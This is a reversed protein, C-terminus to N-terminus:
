GPHHGRARRGHQATTSKGCGSPGVLIIFEGDAISLNFDDVALAGDPYRKVVHDLVIEAM